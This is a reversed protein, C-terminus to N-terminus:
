SEPEIYISGHTISPPVVQDEIKPISQLANLALPCWQVAVDDDEPRVRIPSCGGAKPSTEIAFILYICDHRVAVLEVATEVDSSIL